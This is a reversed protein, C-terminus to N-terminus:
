LVRLAINAPKLGAPLWRDARLDRVPRRAFQACRRAEEPRCLRPLRVGPEAMRDGERQLGAPTYRLAQNPVRLVDGRRDVVIRTEATMSPTLALDHNDVGVVAHYTVVNQVRQPSQRVQVVKGNFVRKGYADVTFTAADGEKVGGIDSESVNTDVQM